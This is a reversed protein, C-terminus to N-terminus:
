FDAKAIMDLTQQGTDDESFPEPPPATSELAQQESKDTPQEQEATEAQSSDSLLPASSPIDLPITNAENSDKQAVELPMDIVEADTYIGMILDPCHLRGFFSAARYRIMVDPMTKWKSGTKGVWGEDKAMKMNITPGVVKRDNQDIAYATCELTDGSGKMDYQLETKYRRSSNIMAVIFQSSWAPRGNVIYLNQMVMMPSTGIRNAMELAIICNSPNGQYDKPIITSQSFAMAMRVALDFTGKRSFINEASLEIDTTVQTVNSPKNNNDM